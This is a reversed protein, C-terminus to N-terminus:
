NWDGRGLEGFGDEGEIRIDGRVEWRRRFVIAEWSSDGFSGEVVWRERGVVKRLQKGDGERVDKEGRFAGSRGVWSRRRDIERIRAIEVRVEIRLM